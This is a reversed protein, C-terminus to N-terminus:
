KYQPHTGLCHKSASKGGLTIEFNKYEQLQYALYLVLLLDPM